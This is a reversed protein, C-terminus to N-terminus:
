QIVECDDEDVWSYGAENEWIIFETKGSRNKQTRIVTYETGERGEYWGEGNIIKIKM